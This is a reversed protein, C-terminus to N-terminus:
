QHRSTKSSLPFYTMQAAFFVSDIENGTILYKLSFAAAFYDGAGFTNNVKIPLAPTRYDASETFLWSGKAGLTKIIIKPNCYTPKITLFQNMYEFEAESVILIDVYNIYEKIDKAQLFRTEYGPSWCILSKNKLKRISQFASNTLEVTGSVFVLDYLDSNLDIRFPKYKDSFSYFNVSRKKTYYMFCKPHAKLNRSVLNTEIKDDKLKAFLNKPFTRSTQTSLYTKSGLIRFCYASNAANGGYTIIEEKTNAFQNNHPIRDVSIYHDETLQGICLVRYKNISPSILYNDMKFANSLTLFNLVKEVILNVNAPNHFIIDAIDKIKDVSSETFSGDIKEWATRSLNDVNRAFRSESDLDLYITSCSTAYSDKIIRIGEPYRIGDLICLRTKDNILSLTNEIITAEGYQKYIREGLVQLNERNIEIKRNKLELKLYSSISIFPCNLHNSILQSLTTKGSAIRGSIIIIREFRKRDVM